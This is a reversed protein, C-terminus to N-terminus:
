GEQPPPAESGRRDLPGSTIVCVCTGYARTRPPVTGVQRAKPQKAMWEAERRFLTRADAAANAQAKRRFERAQPPPPPYILTVSLRATRAAALDM